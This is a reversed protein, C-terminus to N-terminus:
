WSADQGPRDARQMRSAGVFPAPAGARAPAFVLPPPACAPVASYCIHPVAVLAGQRRLAPLTALVAAPLATRSRLAAADPGVAGITGGSCPGAGALLRFRGDWLAGPRAEVPGEMAAAERVLLWGEGLRGAALLRAGGITAARPAAALAAVADWPLPFAAGAIARLLAGLAEPLLAGPSLVAFGEPFLRARRALTDAVAAERRTRAVGYDAAGDVLARTAAGEGGQDRRLSRLRGRQAAPDANSPDEAWAMGAARLLDRLWGPPIGLLPRLLRVTALEVLPAMGALGDPGSGALTRILVTEAQDRAHHGLLLHVIGAEACAAILARYRAARARQAMGTGSALDTLVLRRAAIGRSALRAAAEAAEAASGARLGHDVILALVSGARSRAWDDALLALAMSDAGGSVAVALRPQPDFPALGAM